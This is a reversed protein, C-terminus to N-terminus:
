QPCAVEVIDDNSDLDIARVWGRNSTLFEEESTVTLVVGNDFTLRILNRPKKIEFWDTVRRWVVSGLEQDFSLVDGDYRNHVIDKITRLGEPTRLLTDETFCEDFLFIRKDAGIVTFPLSDVIRRIQDIGGQSAADKESFAVSSDNLISRCSECQNCPEPNSKDLNACLMARAYIRALTTKGQGSGGSFIYSTDLATGNRLRAKLLQVTGKQGLVDAFMLPRYSTDWM